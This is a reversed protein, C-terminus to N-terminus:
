AALMRGGHAADLAETAAERVYDRARTSPVHIRRKISAVHSLKQVAVIAFWLHSGYLLYPRCANVLEGDYGHMLRREEPTLSAYSFLEQEADNPLGFTELMAWTWSLSFRQPQHTLFTAFEVMSDVPVAVPLRRDLQDDVLRDRIDQVRQVFITRAVFPVLHTIGFVVALVVAIYSLLSFLQTSTM